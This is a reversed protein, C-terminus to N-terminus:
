IEIIGEALKGLVKAKGNKITVLDEIRVGGWDFYLGPEVSFVMGNTLKNKTITSRLYPPEHVELGIGHGLGHTFYEDLKNEKFHNNAAHFPEHHPIQHKTIDLAKRQATLVHNYTNRQTDSAKGLFITRSFDACYNQYKAGFDFLLTDGKKIKRSGTLHHPKGSNPGSAVITEFALGHGGLFRIIATLRHAIEEESEGLKLTKLIHTFATQTIIQAKEIKGIEEDTKIMRIDEILNKVDVLKKPALLKKYKLFESYKLDTQEFGVTKANKLSSKIFNEIENREAAIKVALSKGALSQAERQYLRATILTAEKRTITLISERETPSIGQFGTLYLVNFPNTIIFGELKKSLLLSQIKSIQSQM